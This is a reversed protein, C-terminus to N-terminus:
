RGRIDSRNRRSGRQSSRGKARRKMTGNGTGVSRGRTIGNIGGGTGPRGKSSIATTTALESPQQREDCGALHRGLTVADDFTSTALSKRFADGDVGSSLFEYLQDIVSSDRYKEANLKTMLLSHTSLIDLALDTDAEAVDFERLYYVRKVGVQLLEKACQMCPQDTVYATAGELPIGYRAATILANAEAHVCVCVDLGRGITEGAARPLPVGAVEAVKRALKMRQREVCRPCAEATVHDPFGAPLECNSWGSPTGNYGMALIRNDRVLVAGVARGTCCARWSVSVALGLYYETQSPRDTSVSAVCVGGAFSSRTVRDHLLRMTM